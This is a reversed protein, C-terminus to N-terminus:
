EKGRGYGFSAGLQDALSSQRYDFKDTLEFATNERHPIQRNNISDTEGTHPDYRGSTPILTNRGHAGDIHEEYTLFQINDPQNAVSPNSSADLMHHGEFGSVRGTRILEEQQSVTWDRTGRGQMVLKREQEWAKDVADNRQVSFNRPDGYIEYNRADDGREDMEFLKQTMRDYEESNWDKWGNKKGSLDPADGYVSYEHAEGAIRRMELKKESKYLPNDTAATTIASISDSAILKIDTAKKLSESIISHEDYAESVSKGDLLSAIFGSTEKTATSTFRKTIGSSLKAAGEVRLAAEFHQAGGVVNEAFYKVTKNQKVFDKASDSVASGALSGVFTSSGDLLANTVVGKVDSIKGSSTFQDYSTSLAGELASSAAKIGAKVCHGAGAPVLSEVMGTIGGICSSIVINNNDWDNPNWGNEAYEDAAASVLSKVAGSAAGFVIVSAPAVVVVAATILSIVASAGIKIWEAREKRKALEAQEQAHVEELNKIALEVSAKNATLNNYATQAAALLPHVSALSYFRMMSFDTKFSESQNYLETIYSELSSIMADIDAFDNSIHMSELENIENDLDDLRLLVSNFQTDADNLDMNPPSVIDSVYKIWNEALIGIQRLQSRQQTIDSYKKSLEDEDIVADYAADIAPYDKSTYIIFNSTFTQMLISFMSDAYNYVTSLYDKVCNAKNGAINNSAVISKGQKAVASIQKNWQGILDNSATMCARMDSYDVRKGM